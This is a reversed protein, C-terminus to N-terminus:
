GVIKKGIELNINEPVFFEHLHQMSWNKETHYNFIFQFVLFKWMQRCIEGGSIM